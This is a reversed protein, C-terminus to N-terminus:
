LVIDKNYWWFLIFYYFFVQLFLLLFLCLFKNKWVFLKKHIKELTIYSYCCIFYNWFTSCHPHHYLILLLLLRFFSFPSFTSFPCFRSVLLPILSLSLKNEILAQNNRRKDTLKTNIRQLNQTIQTTTLSIFFKKRRREINKHTYM